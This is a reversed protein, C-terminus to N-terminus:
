EKKNHETTTNGKEEKNLLNRDITRLLKSMEDQAIEDQFWFSM